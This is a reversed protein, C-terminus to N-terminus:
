FPVGKNNSASATMPPLGAVATDADRIGASDILYRKRITAGDDLTVTL